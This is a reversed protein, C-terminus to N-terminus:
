IRESRDTQIGYRYVMVKPDRELGLEEQLAAKNM